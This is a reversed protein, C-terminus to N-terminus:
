ETEIEIISTIEGGGGATMVEEAVPFEYKLCLSDCNEQKFRLCRFFLVSLEKWTQSKREISDLPGKKRFVCM